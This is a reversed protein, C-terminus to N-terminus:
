HRSTEGSDPVKIVRLRAEETDSECPESGYPESGYVAQEASAIAGSLRDLTEGFKDNWDLEKSTLISCLADRAAELLAPAAAVLRADSDKFCTAVMDQQGSGMVRPLGDKTSRSEVLRWPTPTFLTEAPGNRM